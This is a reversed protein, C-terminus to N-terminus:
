IKHEWLVCVGISTRGGLRNMRVHFLMVSLEERCLERVMRRQGEWRGTVDELLCHISYIPRPFTQMWWEMPGRSEWILDPGDSLVGAVSGGKLPEPKPV